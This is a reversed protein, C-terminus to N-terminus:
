RALQPAEGDQEYEVEVVPASAGLSIHRRRKGASKVKRPKDGGSAAAAAPASDDDDADGGFSVSKRARKSGGVTDDAQSFVSSGFGSAAGAGGGLASLGMGGVSLDEMDDEDEEDWEFDQLLFFPSNHLVSVSHVQEQSCVCVCVCSLFVKMLFETCTFTTKLSKANLVVPQDDGSTKERLRWVCLLM